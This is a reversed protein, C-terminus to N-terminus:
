SPLCKGEDKLHKVYEGVMYTSLTLNILTDSVHFQDAITDTAPLYINASLSSFVSAVSAILVILARTRRSFTSYVETEGPAPDPDGVPSETDSPMREAKTDPGDCYEEKPKMIAM